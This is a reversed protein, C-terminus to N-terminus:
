PTLAIRLQWAAQGVLRHGELLSAAQKLNRRMTTTMIWTVRLSLPQGAKSSALTGAAAQTGHDHNEFIRAHGSKLKVSGTGRGARAPSTALQRRRVRDSRATLSRLPM